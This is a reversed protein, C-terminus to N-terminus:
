IQILKNKQALAQSPANCKEGFVKLTIFDFPYSQRIM